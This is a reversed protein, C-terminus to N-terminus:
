QKEALESNDTIGELFNPDTRTFFRLKVLLALTGSNIEAPRARM